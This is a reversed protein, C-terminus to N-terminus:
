AVAKISLISFHSSLHKTLHEMIAPIEKTRVDQDVNKYLKEMFSTALEKRDNYTKASANAAGSRGGGRHRKSQTKIQAVQKEVDAKSANAAKNWKARDVLNLVAPKGLDVHQREAEERYKAPIESAVKYRAIYDDATRREINVAKLFKLWMEKPKYLDEYGALAKGTEYRSKAVAQEAINWQQRLRAETKKEPPTLQEALKDLTDKLTNKKMTKEKTAFNAVRETDEDAGFDPV